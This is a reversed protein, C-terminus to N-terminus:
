LKIEDDGNLFKSIDFHYENDGNQTVVIGGFELLKDDLFQKSQKLSIYNEIAFEKASIPKKYIYKFAMNLKQNRTDAWSFYNLMTGLLFGLFLVLSGFFLLGLNFAAENHM